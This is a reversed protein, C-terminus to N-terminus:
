YIHREDSIFHEITKPIQILKECFFEPFAKYESFKELPIWYLYEPLRGTTEQAADMINGDKLLFTYDM